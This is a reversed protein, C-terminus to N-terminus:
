YKSINILKAYEGGLAMLENHTGIECIGDDSIVAIRDANRITSLRHAIILSTRGKTLTDFATQIKQETATDLASTAEDLILIKPNKLFIRAISIRQKQGGSLMIGREGVFSNYGDPMQLIDEHIEAMKAAQIIEEETADIKGYRINDAVSGAFLFVDQQVMGINERLSKLSIDRVSIADILIDGSDCNYFRPILNCITSKGSGSHGVLALTEGSKLKFSVNKLVQIKKDYSFCVDDFVIEGRVNKLELADKKDYIDPEIRMLNVFREFGAMGTTYQETAQCLKKIPTVFSSIYLNFTILGTLSLENNMIFYGGAAIAVVQLIGMFFENGSQFGAMVKYFDKKSLRFRMNGRQFKEVEHNENAFAKAVRIGSLSSEIDTNIESTRQKVALSAKKMHKRYFVTFLIIIPIMTFIILALKWNISVMVIFAGILTILSIFLDEPFHHALETVEFLDNTVNSMLTGTRNKDYFNFSLKQLHSFLDIRMDAEMRVGLDHGWYTVIYYFASRLIYLVVFIVAILFFANFMNNPLLNELSYRTLAPFSVDILAICLACTLNLIFMPLHPKYYDAFIKLKSRNFFEKNKM